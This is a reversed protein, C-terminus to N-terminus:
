RKRWGKIGLVGGTELAGDEAEEAVVDNDLSWKRVPHVDLETEYGAQYMEYGAWAIMAANDTCYKPPPTILEIEPYGAHALYEKLIHRLFKNSAVGGSVVLAKIGSAEPLSSLVLIIKSAVHEFAFMMLEKGLARREGYELNGNKSEIYREITSGLGSFSFIPKRKMVGDKTLPRVLRWDGFSELNMKQEKVREESEPLNYKWDAKGKTFCFQELLRGYAVSETQQSLLDPPLIIRACKDVMDGIAIDITSALVKHSTLGKSHVLMTHGGSVLLTLFPFEPKVDTMGTNEMASLLRPTLAHAQMHNVGVLPVGYAVSLGKATDLGVALSARMGPGRTAAVVDPRKLHSPLYQLSEKVLSALHTRHSEVSVLPHIGGYRRNPSTITKHFLLNATANQPAHLIAVSTDDSSRPYTLFHKVHCNTPFSVM